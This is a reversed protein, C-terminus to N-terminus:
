FTLNLHAGHRVIPIFAHFSTQTSPQTHNRSKLSMTL